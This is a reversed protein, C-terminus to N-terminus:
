IEEEGPLSLLRDAEERTIEIYGPAEGDRATSFVLVTEKKEFAKAADLAYLIHDRGEASLSRFVEIVQVETPNLATDVGLLYDSSCGLFGAVRDIYRRISKSRGSKWESYVSQSIGLHDCLEKQDRGQELLLATIRETVNL